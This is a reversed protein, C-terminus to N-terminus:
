REHTAEERGLLYDLSVKFYDALKVLTEFDPQRRAKEYHSIASRKIGLKDSLQYQTLSQSERLEVLRRGFNQTIRCIKVEKAKLLGSSYVPGSQLKADQLMQAFM